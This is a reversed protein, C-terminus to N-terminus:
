YVGGRLLSGPLLARVRLPNIMKLHIFKRAKNMRRGPGWVWAEEGVSGVLFMSTMM